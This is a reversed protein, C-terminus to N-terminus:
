QLGKLLKKFNDYEEDIKELYKKYNDEESLYFPKYIDDIQSIIFSIRSQVIEPKAQSLLIINIFKLDEELEILNLINSLYYLKFFNFKIIKEYDYYKLLKM